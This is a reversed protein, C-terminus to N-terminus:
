CQSTRRCRSGCGALPGAPRLWRQSATAPPALQVDEPLWPLPGHVEARPESGAGDELAMQPVAARAPGTRYICVEVGGLLVPELPDPPVVGKARGLAAALPPVDWEAREEDTTAPDVEVLRLEDGWVRYQTGYKQPQGGRVLLRDLAAAALWRGPLHGLEVARLALERARRYFEQSEGHQFVMAGHFHDPGDVVEGAALLELVRRRRDRDRAAMDPRMGSRRDAQDAEFIRRLEANM